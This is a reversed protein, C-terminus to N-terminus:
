CGGVGMKRERYVILVRGGGDKGRCQVAGEGGDTELCVTCGGGGM